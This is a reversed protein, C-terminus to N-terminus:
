LYLYILIMIKLICSPLAKVSKEGEHANFANNCFLYLVDLENQEINLNNIIIERDESTEEEIETDRDQLDVESLINQTLLGILRKIEM